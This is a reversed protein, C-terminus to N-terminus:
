FQHKIPHTIKNSGVKKDFVEKYNNVHKGSSALDKFVFKYFYDKLDNDVLFDKTNYMNKKCICAFLVEFFIFKQHERQFELIDQM